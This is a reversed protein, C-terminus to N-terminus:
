EIRILKVNAFAILEGSGDRAEAEAVALNNKMTRLRGSLRYKEGVRMSKKFRVNIEATAAKCGKKYAAWVAMEDLLTAVIGGHVIGHYGQSWAPPDFESAVGDETEVIDLRLGHPNDQGCVFCRRDMLFNNTM